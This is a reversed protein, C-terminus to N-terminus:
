LIEFISGQKQMLPNFHTGLPAIQICRDFLDSNIKLKLYGLQEDQDCQDFNSARFYRRYADFWEPWDLPDESFKGPDLALNPKVHSRKDRPQDNPTEPATPIALKSMAILVPNIANDCRVQLNRVEDMVQKYDSNMYHPNDEEYVTFSSVVTHRRALNESLTLKAQVDKIKQTSLQRYLDITASGITANDQNATAIATEIHEAQRIANNCSIVLETKSRTYSQKHRDRQAADRTPEVPELSEQIQSHISSLLQLDSM